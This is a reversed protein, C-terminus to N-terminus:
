PRQPVVKNTLIRNVTELDLPGPQPGGVAGPQRMHTTGVLRQVAALSNPVGMVAPDDPKGDGDYDGAILRDLWHVKGSGDTFTYKGTGLGVARLVADANGGGDASPHCGTCDRPVKQVTHHHVPNHVNGEGALGEGTQLPQADIVTQGAADIHTFFISTGVLPQIRGRSNFGLALADALVSLGFSKVAGPRTEGTMRSTYKERDDRVMHCGYCNLTWTNHCAFCEMRGETEQAVNAFKFNPPLGPFQKQVAASDTAALANVEAKLAQRVEVTGAHLQCGMRTRLNYLKQTPDTRQTIQTVPHLGGTLKDRQQVTGDGITKVTQPNPGDAGVASGAQDFTIGADSM